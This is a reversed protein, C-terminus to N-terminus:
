SRDLGVAPARHLAKGTEADLAVVRNYMTGLYMVGDIVLPTAASQRPAPREQSPAVPAPTDYTWALRLHSVNATNIQKLPSYRQAGADHGHAPWDKEANPAAVVVTAAAIVVATARLFRM